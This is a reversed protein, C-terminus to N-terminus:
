ETPGGGSSECAPFSATLLYIIFGQHPTLEVERLNLYLWELARADLQGYGSSTILKPSEEPVFRGDPGGLMAVRVPAPDPSLACRLASPIPVVLPEEFALELWFEGKVEPPVEGKEDKLQNGIVVERWPAFEDSGLAGVFKGDRDGQSRGDHEWSSERLTALRDRLGEPLVPPVDTAGQEGGDDTTEGDGDTQGDDSQQDEDKVEGDQGDVDDADDTDRGEGQDDDEAQQRRRREEQLEARRQSLALQRRWRALFDGQSEGDDFGDDDFGGDDFGSRGSSAAPPLSDGTPPVEAGPVADGRSTFWDWGGEEGPGALAEDRMASPLQALDVEDLEVVPVSEPPTPTDQQVWRIVSPMAVGHIGLSVVMGVGFPMQQFAAGLLALGGQGWGRLRGLMSLNKNKLKKPLKKKSKM